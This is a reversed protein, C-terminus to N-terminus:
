IAHRGRGDAYVNGPPNLFEVAPERPYSSPEAPPFWPQLGPREQQTHEGIHVCSRTPLERLLTPVGIRVRHLPQQTFRDPVGVSDAVVDTAIHGVRDPIRAAHQDEVVRAIQFRSGCRDSNLTLVGAGGPPDFVRLDGHKQGVGGARTPHQDVPGDVQGHGPGGVRVSARGGAHGRVDGEGRLDGEPPPHELLCEVGTDRGGPCGGVLEVAAVTAEAAVQLGAPEAIDERDRFAVLYVDASQVAGGAAVVDGGGEALLAHFRYLAPSPAFPRRSNSQAQIATMGGASSAVPYWQSRM